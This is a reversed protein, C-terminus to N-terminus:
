AGSCPSRGRTSRTAARGAEMAPWEQHVVSRGYCVLEGTLRDRIAAPLFEATEFQQVVALAEAEGGAARSTTADHLRPLHHLRRLDRVRGRARRLVGSARDGDAFYSGEPARRRVLLMAGITVANAVVLVVLSWLLLVLLGISTAGVAPRMMRIPHAPASGRSGSRPSGAAATRRPSSPSSASGPRSTTRARPRRCGPGCSRRTTPPWRRAGPGARSSTASSRSAPRRPARCSPGYGALAEAVRGDRLRARLAGADSEVDAALRYPEAEVCGPLIRRMRSIEARATVPKGEDGHLRLALQEATLGAPQEALLVLLESHRLSVHVPEGDLRVDARDRGLVALELRPAARRAPRRAARPAPQLSLEVLAATAAVLGLTHPHVTEMPATLNIAGLLRGGAPDHVPAAACTWWQSHECYHEAAFVQVAQGTALAVGIANTGAAQEGFRAGAVMGLRHAAERRVRRDGDVALLLGSADSLAILHDSAAAVPGLSQRLM